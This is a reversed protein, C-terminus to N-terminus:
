SFNLVPLSQGSTRGRARKYVMKPLFSVGKTYRANVFPVGKTYGGNSLLVGKVYIREFIKIFPGKLYRFSM